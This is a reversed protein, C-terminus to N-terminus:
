RNAGARDSQTSHQRTQRMQYLHRRDHAAILSFCCLLTFRLYKSVPSHAKVRSLDLGEAEDLEGQVEQHLRIFDAVLDSLPIGASPLFVRPAKVKFAAPPETLAILKRELWNMRFPGPSRLGKARGREVAERIGALYQENTRNLHNIIEAISWAGPQPQRHAEEESLGATQATLDQVIAQVQQRLDQTNM